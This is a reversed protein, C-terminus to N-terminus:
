LLFDFFLLFDCLFITFKSRKAPDNKRKNRIFLLYKAQAINYILTYKHVSDNANVHSTASVGVPTTMFRTDPLEYLAYRPLGSFFM